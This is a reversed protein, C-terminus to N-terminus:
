GDTSLIECGLQHSIGSLGNPNNTVEAGGPSRRDDHILTIMWKVADNVETRTAQTPLYAATAHPGRCLASQTLFGENEIGHTVHM